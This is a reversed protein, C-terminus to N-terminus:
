CWWDDIKEPKIEKGDLPMAIKINPVELDKNHVHDRFQENIRKFDRMAVPLYEVLQSDM